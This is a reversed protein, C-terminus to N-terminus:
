GWVDIESIFFMNGRIFNTRNFNPMNKLKICSDFSDTIFNRQMTINREVIKRKLELTETDYLELQVKYEMKQIDFDLVKETENKYYGDYEDVHDNLIFIDCTRVCKKFLYRKM